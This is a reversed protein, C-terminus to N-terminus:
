AEIDIRIYIIGYICACDCICVKYTSIWHFNGFLM